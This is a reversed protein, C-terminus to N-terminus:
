RMREVLEPHEMCDAPEVQRPARLDAANWHKEIADAQARTIKIAQPYDRTHLNCVRGHSRTMYSGSDAIAINEPNLVYRCGNTSEIVIVARM